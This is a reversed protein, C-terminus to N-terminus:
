LQSPAIGLRVPSVHRLVRQALFIVLRAHCAVRDQHLRCREKPAPDAHHQAVRPPTVVQMVSSAHGMTLLELLLQIPGQAACRARLQTGNRMGARAHLLDM